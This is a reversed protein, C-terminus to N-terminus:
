KSDSDPIGNATSTETAPDNVLIHPHSIALYITLACGIVTLSPIAIVLWVWPNKRWDDQTEANNKTARM